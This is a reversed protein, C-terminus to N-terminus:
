STEAAHPAPVEPVSLPPFTGARMPSAIALADLKPRAYGVAYSARGAVYRCAWADKVPAGAAISLSKVCRLELEPNMQPFPGEGKFQVLSDPVVARFDPYRMAADPARVTTAGVQLERAETDLYVGKPRAKLAHTLAVADFLWHQGQGASSEADQWATFMTLGDTAVIVISPGTHEVYVNRLYERRDKPKAAHRLAARIFDPNITTM